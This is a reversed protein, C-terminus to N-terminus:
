HSFVNGKMGLSGLVIDITLQIHKRAIAEAKDGDKATLADILDRHQKHIRQDVDPTFIVPVSLDWYNIRTQSHLNVLTPNHAAETIIKHFHDNLQNFELRTIGPKEMANALIGLEQLDTESRRTAALHTAYGEIALRCELRDRIETPNHERVLWGRNREVLGDKELLFLAERIPTRSVNLWDALEDEILRRNPRLEASLIADRLQTYVAHSIVRTNERSKRGKQFKEFSNNNGNVPASNDGNSM